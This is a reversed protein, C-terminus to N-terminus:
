NFFLLGEKESVLKFPENKIIFFGDLDIYNIDNCLNMASSIGLTTEVMCGIMTKLGLKKAKNLINIGNIYGGAKMLKMNIGHFQEKLENFNPANVVSEDAILEFVSRNKLYIYENKLNAPMPQEVFEINFGKIKEEFSLFEDPNTWAENADIKLPKDYFQTVEKITEYGEARNIKLKLSKFRKLNYKVIFEGIEGIKMIPLTYTTDITKPEHLNLLKYVKLHAKASLYHVYASEIGFRLSNCLNISTILETLEELSKLKQPELQLFMAFQQQVKEPTEEYRLNPAVEGMGFYMTDKVTIFSNIKYLSENRSIKWNYLLEFKKEEISWNLV